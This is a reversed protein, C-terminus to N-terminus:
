SKEKTLNNIIQTLVRMTTKLEDTDIGEIAKGINHVALPITIEKISKGKSTLYIVFSRKDISDREKRVFGNKVLYSVLSSITAKDKLLEAQLDKQKRADKSWLVALLSWQEVTLNHQIMDHNFNNSLLRSSKGLLGGINTEAKM